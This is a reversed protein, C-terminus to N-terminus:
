AALIRYQQIPKWAMNVATNSTWIGNSRGSRRGSKILLCSAVRDAVKRSLVQNCVPWLGPQVDLWLLPIQGVYKHIYISTIKTNCKKHWHSVPLAVPWQQKIIHGDLPQTISRTRGDTRYLSMVWFCFCLFILITRRPNTLTTGIKLQFLSLDHDGSMFFRFLNSCTQLVRKNILLLDLVPLEPALKLTTWVMTLDLKSNVGASVSPLQVSLQM